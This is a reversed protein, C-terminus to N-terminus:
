TPLITESGKSRTRLYPTLRRSLPAYKLVHANKTPKCRLMRALSSPESVM